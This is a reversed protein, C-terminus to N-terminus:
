PQQRVLTAGRLVLPKLPVKHQDLATVNVIREGKSNKVVPIQSVPTGQMATLLMEAATAGQEQGTKVVAAWAGQEVQYRNGGLLPGDYVESLYTLVESNGSASDSHNKIGELSDVFLTDCAKLQEAISDLQAFDSVLFVDNLKVPFTTKEAEVQHALARGSPVDNTVVCASSISPLLQKAFALSERVHARELIGSIHGNPYGYKAADSNVGAFMIPTSVQDKLSPVVFMAQANDDVTIVGDPNLKNFVALAQKAKAMGGAPSAKTDMYFYTLDTSDALTSDIGERIEKCWPNNEEYSMVVLVKYEAASFPSLLFSLLGVLIVAYKM